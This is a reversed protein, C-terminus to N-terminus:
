TSIKPREMKKENEKQIMRERHTNTHAHVHKCTMQIINITGFQVTKTTIKMIDRMIKLEAKEEKKREKLREREM